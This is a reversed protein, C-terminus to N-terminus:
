QKAQDILTPPVESYQAAAPISDFVACAAESGVDVPGSNATGAKPFLKAIYPGAILAVVIVVMAIAVYQITRETKQTEERSVKKKPSM